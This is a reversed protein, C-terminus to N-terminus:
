SRAPRRCTRLQWTVFLKTATLDDLMQASRDVLVCRLPSETQFRKLIGGFADSRYVVNLWSHNIRSCRFFQPLDLFSVIERVLDASLHELNV